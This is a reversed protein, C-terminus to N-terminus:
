KCFDQAVGTNELVMCDRTMRQKGPDPELTTGLRFLSVLCGCISFTSISRM